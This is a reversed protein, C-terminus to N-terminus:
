KNFTMFEPDFSIGGTNVALEPLDFEMNSPDLAGYCSRKREEQQMQLELSRKMRAEAERAFTSDLQWAHNLGNVKSSHKFEFDMQKRLHNTGGRPSSGLSM